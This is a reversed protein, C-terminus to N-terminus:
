VFTPRFQPHPVPIREGYKVLEGNRGAGTGVTGNAFQWRNPPAMRSELGDLRDHFHPWDEMVGLCACKWAYRHDLVPM